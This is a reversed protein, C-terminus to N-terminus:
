SKGLLQERFFHAYEVPDGEEILATLKEMGVRDIFVDIAKMWKVGENISGRPDTRYAFLDISLYGDFGTRRLWYFFEIFELTHVSGFIMDLDAGNYNDNMHCHFLKNGRMQMLAVVEGLNEHGYLSHGIDLCIGVNDLGIDEIMLLAKPVTSIISYARPEDPKPELGIKIKPNHGAIERVGEVWWEWAKQYDVEFYYDFGDQGPWLGIYPCELEAAMDVARKCQDISKRRMKPDTSGVSGKGQSWHGWLNPILSALKLGYKDLGAKVEKKNPEGIGIWRGNDSSEFMLLELGDVLGDKGAMEIIQYVDNASGPEGYGGGMFRDSPKNYNTHIVSYKHKRQSM